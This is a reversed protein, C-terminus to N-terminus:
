VAAVADSMSDYRVRQTVDRSSGDSYRAVVRLQQGQGARYLREAPTVALDTVAPENKQPGPVDAELWRLLVEYDYSDADFRRGGGHSTELLPKRLLLSDAPRLLSIRRQQEDRVIEPYDEEPAYGFLSLKLGGQGYQAGHCAGGNCGARSLIPMVDLRFSVAAKPQVGSVQVPVEVSHKGHIVLIRGQGNGIPRVLGTASVKV